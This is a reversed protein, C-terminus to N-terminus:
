IRKVGKGKNARKNAKIAIVKGNKKKEILYPTAAKKDVKNIYTNSIKRTPKQKLKQTQKDGIKAKCQYSKHGEMHCLRCIVTEGEVPKNVGATTNDQPPQIQKSKGKKDYLAKCLRAGEQRLQENENTVENSCTEVVINEVLVQNCPNSDDILDFCFTSADKKIIKPMEILSVRPTSDINELKTTLENNHINLIKMKGLLNEIAEQSSALRTKLKENKKILGDNTASSPANSELQEIKTSLEGNLNAFTEFKELLCKYDDQSSILKNKLTKLQAKQKTYVDEFFNVTKALEDLSPKGEGENDSCTADSSSLISMKGRIM